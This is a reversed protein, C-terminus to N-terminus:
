SRVPIPDERLLGKIFEVGTPTVLTQMIPMPGNTREITMHRVVFYGEDIFQRYPTNRNTGGSILIKKKRLYGFLANRGPTGLEL